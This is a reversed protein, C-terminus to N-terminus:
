GVFAAIADAAQPLMTAAYISAITTAAIVFWMLAREM